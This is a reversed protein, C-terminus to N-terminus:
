PRNSRDMISSWTAHIRSRLWRRTTVSTLPCSERAVAQSASASVVVLAQTATGDASLGEDRVLSVEPVQRAEQEIRGIVALDAPTLPGATRAAVLIVTQPNLSSSSAMSGQFPRAMVNAQQSPSSVPVFELNAFNNVASLNPLLRIGVIGGIVWGAIILYRFRVDFRGIAAFVVRM